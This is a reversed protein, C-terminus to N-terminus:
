KKPVGQLTHKLAGMIHSVSLCPEWAEQVTSSKKEQFNWSRCHVPFIDEFIV